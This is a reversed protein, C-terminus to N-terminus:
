KTGKPPNPLEVDRQVMWRDGARRWVIVYRGENTDRKKGREQYAETFTGSEVVVDGGIDLSTPRRTRGFYTAHAWWDRMAKEIAPRGSITGAPEVLSADEAYMLAMAATNGARAYRMFREFASDIGARVLTVAPAQVQGRQAEAVPAVSVLGALVAVTGVVPFGLTRLPM